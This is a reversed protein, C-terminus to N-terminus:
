AKEKDFRENDVVLVMDLTLPLYTTNDNLRYQGYFRMEIGCGQVCIFRMM